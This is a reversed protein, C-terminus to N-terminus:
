KIVLVKMGDKIYAAGQSVVNRVGEPVGTVAASSGIITEINIKVKRVMDTSSLIYVYGDQGDAEVISEIPIMSYTKRESPFIDIGAIFGSALRVDTPQLAMEIEYTGTYPNSIEGVQDIVAAFVKGKYADVVVSASDGPNIKVLDKDSLTSKVKWFKGASGFLFVPYGSSVIENERVLKRLIIGDDPAYISSHTLNFGAIELTSKAVDLATAANQKQELTAVSDRYLNEVRNFDRRAKEYNNKAQSANANIESLNLSALLTGKKVRDGEKVEIKGVIGATKFSLKYEERSVLVGTSHVPISIAGSTIVALKVRITEESVTKQERSKCAPLLFIIMLVILRKEM